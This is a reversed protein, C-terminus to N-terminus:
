TRRLNWFIPFGKVRDALGFRLATYSIYSGLPIYAVEDLAVRQIDAAIAKRAADDPADFWRAHLTELEPIAPWGFYGNIGNARLLPHVAPSAFDFSSFSTCFVSWGGKHVPQKSTRRQVVTGWDSMAVDQNFGLRRFLDAAVQTMATLSLLDTPGILRIPQDTYGAQRILRQALAFDRPGTLRAADADTELPSGPTFVGGVARWDVPDEGVIATMFDAQNIAPLLAQRLAKDKFPSQLFNMRMATGFTLPAFGQARLHLLRRCRTVADRIEAM